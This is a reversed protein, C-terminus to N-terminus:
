RSGSSFPCSVLRTTSARTSRSPASRNPPSVGATSSSSFPATPASHGPSGTRPPWRGPRVRSALAPRRRCERVAADWPREGLDMAGGIMHWPHSPSYVSHLQLPRDEEDTVYLCVFAVAKPLSQAYQEPPVWTEEPQADHAAVACRSHRTMRMLAPSGSFGLERYLPAAEASTHLEFLTIHEDALHDVLTGVVARAYGRRRYQPHTAVMQVRAALGHPYSPAALVPRILGLACAVPGGTPSDIVFARADGDPMLRVALEDACRRIWQASLPTSLIYASRLQIIAAADQPAAARVLFKEAAHRESHPSTPDTHM